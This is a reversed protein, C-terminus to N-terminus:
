KSKRTHVPTSYYETCVKKVDDYTKCVKESGCYDGTGSCDGDEVEIQAGLSPAQLAGFVSAAAAVSLVVVLKAKM